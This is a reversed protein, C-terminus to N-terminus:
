NGTSYALGGGYGGAVFTGNGYAIASAQRPGFTDDAVATWTM